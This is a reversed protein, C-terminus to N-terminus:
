TPLVTDKPKSFRMGALLADAVESLSHSSPVARRDVLTPSYTRVGDVDINHWIPLIVKQGEVERAVLGDLERQPWEKAFFDPSLVVVGFKSQALGRDISRRLSDGVTLTFDDYWVKVGRSHLEDALPRVFDHKDESAHCIFVDWEEEPLASRPKDPASKASKKLVADKPKIKAVFLDIQNHIRALSSTKIAELKSRQIDDNTFPPKKWGARQLYNQQETLSSPFFTEVERKLEEALEPSYVPQSADLVQKLSKWVIEQRKKISTEQLQDLDAYQQGSPMSFGRKAGEELIRREQAAQESYLDDLGQSVLRNTLEVLKSDLM